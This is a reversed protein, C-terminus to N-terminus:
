VYKRMRYLWVMWLIFVALYLVATFIYKHVMYFSEPRNLAVWFLGVIRGLNLLHISLSGLAVMVIKERNMPGMGILFAIYVIFVNIGNCGEYVGLVARGDNVLLVTAKITHNQATTQYGMQNLIWSSEKTVEWTAPDAIPRYSEVWFGYLLNGIFYTGLFIGLFLFAPKFRKIETWNM